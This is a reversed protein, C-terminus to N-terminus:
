IMSNNILVGMPIIPYIRSEKANKIFLVHAEIKEHNFAFHVLKWWEPIKRIEPSLIGELGDRIIDQAITQAWTQAQSCALALSINGQVTGIARILAELDQQRTRFWAPLLDTVRHQITSLETLSTGLPHKLTDLESGMRGLKSALIEVDITNLTGLGTGIGGLVNGILDRKNRRLSADIGKIWELWGIRLTNTYKHCIPMITDVRLDLDILLHTLAYQPQILIKRRLQRGVVIPGGRYIVPIGLVIHEHYWRSEWPGYVAWEGTDLPTVNITINILCVWKYGENVDKCFPNKQGFGMYAQIVRRCPVRAHLVQTGMQIAVNISGNAQVMRVELLFIHMGEMIIRPVYWRM